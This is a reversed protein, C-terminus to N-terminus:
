SSKAPSTQKKSSTRKSPKKMATKQPLGTFPNKNKNEKKRMDPVYRAAIVGLAFGIVTMILVGVIGIIKKTLLFFGIIVFPFTFLSIVENQRQKRSPMKRAM